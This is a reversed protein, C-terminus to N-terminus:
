NKEMLMSHTANLIPLLILRHFRGGPYGSGFNRDVDVNELFKWSHLLADRTVKACISAASVVPYLSDAKKAVTIDIDPFLLSLKAQYKEASGVKIFM